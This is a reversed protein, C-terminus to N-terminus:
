RGGGAFSVMSQEPKPERRLLRDVAERCTLVGEVVDRVAEAIPMEVGHERALTAVQRCNLAGEVTPAAGRLLDVAREGRGLREGFTRNRSARGYCTLMLDGVGSLGAFTEPRAGLVVGIRIMEALGRTVLAAKANEGLGLGDCAGAAIAVVNKLVGGLEVGAVDDSTYVRFTPQAFWRQVTEAVQRKAAAVVVATPVGRAVEDAFSPGSMVAIDVEGMVAAILASMTRAREPDLGKTVSLWLPGAPGAPRFRALVAAAFRSPVAFVVVDAKQVAEAPEATWEIADPLPVGPLFRRNERSKRTDAILDPDPGWVCVRHGNRCLCLALATGWAGDGIVAARAM